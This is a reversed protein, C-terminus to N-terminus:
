KLEIVIDGKHNKKLTDLYEQIDKINGNTKTITVWGMNEVIYRLMNLNECEIAYDAIGAHWQLNIDKNKRIKKLCDLHGIKIIYAVLSYNIHGYDSNSCENYAEYQKLENHYKEESDYVDQVDEDSLSGYLIEAVRYCNSNCIIDIQKIKENRFKTSEVSCDQNIQALKLGKTIHPPVIGSNMIFFNKMSM